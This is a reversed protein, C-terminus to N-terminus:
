WIRSRAPRVGVPWVRTNRAHAVMHNRATTCCQRSKCGVTLIPRCRAWLHKPASSWATWFGATAVTSHTSAGRACVCATPWHETSWIWRSRQNPAFRSKRPSTTKKRREPDNAWDEPLYLESDLLCQFGPASYSLHVGVVGNDVKGRSGLWQRAAGTTHKGSKAVGSEDIIGIAEVHSHEKALIQQCRDRLQQENWKISELFRQLTRPAKGFELAIAEASKRLLGSLQGQVYIQLLVRGKGRLFCDAFLVLFAVLEKGLGAIQKLTM